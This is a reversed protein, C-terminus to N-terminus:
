KVYLKGLNEFMVVPKTIAEKLGDYKKDVAIISKTYAIPYFLMEDAVFQQIKKYLDARKAADTEIAAKAWMADFDKNVYHSYNYAETSVFLSKYADPEFGMIYGGM